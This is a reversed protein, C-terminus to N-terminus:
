GAGKTPRKKGQGLLYGYLAMNILVVGLGLTIQIERTLAEPYILSLIYTEIFGNDSGPHSQRLSNELPTLPCIWGTFEILAGWLAAPLHIWAMKPWKIVLFGGAVVFLIFLFHIVVIFDALFFSM